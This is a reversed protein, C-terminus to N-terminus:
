IGDGGDFGEADLTNVSELPVLHITQIVLPSGEAKGSSTKLLIGGFSQSFTSCSHFIAFGFQLEREAEDVCHAKNLYDSMCIRQM